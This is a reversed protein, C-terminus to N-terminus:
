FEWSLLKLGVVRNFHKINGTILTYNGAICFAAIFIDADEIPTGQVRLDAYIKSATDWEALAMSGIPLKRCLTDFLKQQNVANVALLGRKVEYYVIPPIIFINGRDTEEEVMSYALESNKLLNSVINTDLAFTKMPRTRENHERTRKYYRRIRAAISRLCGIM